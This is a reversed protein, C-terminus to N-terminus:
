LRPPHAFTPTIDQRGTVDIRVPVDGRAILIQEADNLLDAGIIAPHHTEARHWRDHYFVEGLYVRNRLITLVAAGSWPKGTKTRYGDETLTNAIARTGIRDRVHLRFIPAM